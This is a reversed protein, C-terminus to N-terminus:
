TEKKCLRLHDPQKIKKMAKRIQQPYYNQANLHSDCYVAIGQDFLLFIEKKKKKLFFGKRQVCKWLV